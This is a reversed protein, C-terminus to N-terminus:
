LNNNAPLVQKKRFFLHLLIILTGTIISVDAMNFIGTQFGGLNIHLFDTVSGYVVRDFLNGAGGGIIFCLGWLAATPLTTKVLAYAFVFGLMLLPLLSLLIDKTAQPLQDGLSLFAGRNEVNTVTLHNGIIAITQYPQINNRIYEKSAQDCGINIFIVALILSLRILSKTKM